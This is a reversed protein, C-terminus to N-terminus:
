WTRVEDFALCASLPLLCRVRGAPAVPLTARAPGELVRPIVWVSARAAAYGVEATLMAAVCLESVMCVYMETCESDAACPHGVNSANPGCVGPGVCDGDGDGGGCQSSTLCPAGPNTSAENCAGVCEGEMHTNLAATATSGISDSHLAEVVALM